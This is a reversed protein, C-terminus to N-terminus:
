RRQYLDDTPLLKLEMILGDDMTDQDPLMSLRIKFIDQVAFIGDEQFACIRSAQRTLASTKRSQAQAALTLVAAGGAPGGM